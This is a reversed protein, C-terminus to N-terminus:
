AEAETSWLRVHPLKTEARVRSESSSGAARAARPSATWRSTRAFAAARVDAWHGAPDATELVDNYAYWLLM